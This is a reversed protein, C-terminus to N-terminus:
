KVRRLRPTLTPILSPPVGDAYRKRHQRAHERDVHLAWYRNFDGNARLARLRLLGAALADDYALYHRVGKLYRLCSTVRKLVAGKLQRANANRRLNARVKAHEGRLLWMLRQQVWLEADRSGEPHFAYAAKWLYELVHMLDVIITIDVGLKRASKKALRIQDRNGDVLVVWTRKM